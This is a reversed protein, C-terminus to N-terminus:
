IPKIVAMADDIEQKLRALFRWKKILLVADDMKKEKDFAITMLKENKKIEKDLRNLFLTLQDYNHRAKNIKQRWRWQEALFSAPLINDAESMDNKGFLTLLYIAREVPQSMTHWAKNIHATLLLAHRKEAESGNAFRDPHTLGILHHYEQTLAANDVAFRVPQKFLEFFNLKLLNSM